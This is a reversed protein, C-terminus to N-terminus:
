ALKLLVEEAVGAHTSGRRSSEGRWGSDPQGTVYDCFGAAYAEGLQAPPKGLPDGGVVEHWGREDRHVAQREGGVALHVSCFQRSGDGM